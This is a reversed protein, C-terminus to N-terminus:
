LALATHNEEGAFGPDPFRAEGMLGLCIGPFLAKQDQVRITEFRVLAHRIRRQKVQEVQPQVGGM